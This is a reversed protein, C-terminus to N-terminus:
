IVPAAFQATGARLPPKAKSGQAVRVPTLFAVGLQQMTQEYADAGEVELIPACIQKLIRTKLREGVTLRIPLGATIKTWTNWSIGIRVMIESQSGVLKAIDDVFDSNIICMNLNRSM